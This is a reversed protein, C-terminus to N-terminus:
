IRPRTCHLECFHCWGCGGQGENADNGTFDSDLTHVMAMSDDSVHWSMAGSGHFHDQGSQDIGNGAFLSSVLNDLDVSYADDWDPSIALAGM